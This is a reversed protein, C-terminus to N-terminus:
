LVGGSQRAPVFTSAPYERRAVSPYQWLVHVSHDGLFYCGELTVGSTGTSYARRSNQVAQDSLGGSLNECPENTLVIRGGANNRSYAIDAAQAAAACTLLAIIATLKKM